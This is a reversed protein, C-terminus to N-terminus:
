PALAARVAAAAEDVARRGLDTVPGLQFFIHIAGEYDCLEVPVGAAELQQAYAVTEDHLPDFGAAVVHAPPLGALDAVFPTADAEDGLREGLYHARFWDLLESTLVYGEGNSRRSAWTPASRLDLYPYVLLQLRLDPGGEDRARRAIVAALNGGASDGGVAIRDPEIGMSPGEEVVWNLAAWCDDVAAPFPHEPALRYDVAVVICEARNALERCVHDHTDLSGIVFGGGHFWVLAGFPGARGPQYIRVPIEGRAGDVTQEQVLTVEEPDGFLAPLAALGARVDDVTRTSLPQAADAASM